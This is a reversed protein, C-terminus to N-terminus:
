ILRHTPESLLNAESLSYQREYVKKEDTSNEKNEVLVFIFPPFAQPM